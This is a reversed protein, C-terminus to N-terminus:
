NITKCVRVDNGKNKFNEYESRALEGIIMKFQQKSFRLANKRIEDTEFRSLEFRKVADIIANPTAEEFFIGTENEVVTECAGGKKFAIVPRGCAQAELGALGFDEEGSVILARCRQYNNLLTKEDVWGLFNINPGALKKLHSAYNGEGVIKLNLGLQNFALIAMEINKYEKLRSVMLFYEARDNNEAGPVFHDVNVPPYVVSSNVGYYKKLREKVTRSIAIYSDPRQRAKMDWKEFRQILRNIAARLFGKYEDTYKDRMVYVFRPVTYCYCIHFAKPALVGKAYNVSSTLVIDFESLDFKEIAHQYFPFYVYHSRRWFPFSQLYSTQRVCGKYQPLKKQDYLLTFVPADPFIERLADLCREAGGFQTLFDHVIAIKAQSVSEINNRRFTEV